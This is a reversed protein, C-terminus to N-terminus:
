PTSTCRQPAQFARQKSHGTLKVSQRVAPFLLFSDSKLGYSLRLMDQGHAEQQKTTSALGPRDAVTTTSYTSRKCVCASVVEYYFDVQIQM